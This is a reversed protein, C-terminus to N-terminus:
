DEKTRGDDIVGIIPINIIPKHECDCWSPGPCKDHLAMDELDAAQACSKCIM